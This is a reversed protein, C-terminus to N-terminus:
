VKELGEKCLVFVKLPENSRDSGWSKHRAAEIHEAIMYLMMDNQGNADFEGKAIVTFVTKKLDYNTVSGSITFPGLYNHEYATNLLGGIAGYHTVFQQGSKVVKVLDEVEFEKFEDIKDAFYDSVRTKQYSFYKVMINRATDLAEMVEDEEVYTCLKGVEFNYVKGLEYKVVCDPPAIDLIERETIGNTINYEVKWIM